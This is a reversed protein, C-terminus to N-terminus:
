DFILRRVLDNWFEKDKWRHRNRTIEAREARTKAKLRKFALKLQAKEELSYGQELAWTVAGLMAITMSAAVGAAIVDAVGTPPLFSKVLLFASGGAAESAFAPLLALAQSRAMWRGTYLYYLGTIAGVQTAVVWAAAGPLLGEAATALAAGGVIATAYPRKAKRTREISADIHELAAQLLAARLSDVGTAPPLPEDEARPPPTATLHVRPPPVLEGWAEHLKEEEKEIRKQVGRKREPSRASLGRAVDRAHVAIFVDKTKAQLAAMRARAADDPPGRVVLVVADVDREPADADVIELRAVEEDTAMPFDLLARALSTKGVGAEGAIRVVFTSKKRPDPVPLTM